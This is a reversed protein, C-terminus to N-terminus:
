RRLREGAEGSGKAPTKAKGNQLQDLNERIKEELQHM